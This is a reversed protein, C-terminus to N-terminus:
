DVERFQVEGREIGLLSGSIQGQTIGATRFTKVDSTEGLDVAGKKKRKNKPGLGQKPAKLRAEKFMESVATKLCTGSRDLIWAGHM